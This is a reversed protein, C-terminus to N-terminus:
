WHQVPTDPLSVVCSFTDLQVESSHMATALIARLSPNGVMKPSIFPQQLPLKYEFRGRSRIAFEDTEYSGANALEPHPAISSNYFTWFHQNNATALSQVFHRDFLGRLIVFGCVQMVTAADFISGIDNPDHSAVRVHEATCLDRVAAQRYGHGFLQQARAYVNEPLLQLEPLQPTLGPLVHAAYSEHKLATPLKEPTTQHGKATHHLISRSAANAWPSALGGLLETCDEAASARSFLHYCAELGNLPENSDSARRNVLSSDRDHVRPTDTDAATPNHSSFSRAMLLAFSLAAFVNRLM